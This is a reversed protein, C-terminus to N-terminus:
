GLRIPATPLLPPPAAPLLHLETRDSARGTPRHLFTFLSPYFPPLSNNSFRRPVLADKYRAFSWPQCILDAGVGYWVRRATLATVPGSFLFPYDV